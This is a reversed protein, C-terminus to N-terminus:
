SRFIDLFSFGVTFLIGRFSFTQFLFLHTPMWVIIESDKESNFEVFINQGNFKDKIQPIAIFLYGGAEASLSM